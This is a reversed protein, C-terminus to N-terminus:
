LPNLQAAASSTLFEAPLRDEVWRSMDEADIAADDGAGAHVLVEESGRPRALVPRLCAHKMVARGISGSPSWSSDRM